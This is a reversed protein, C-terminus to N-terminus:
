RRVSLEAIMRIMKRSEADGSEYTRCLLEIQEPTEGAIVTFGNEPQDPLLSPKSHWGADAFEYMVFSEALMARRSAATLSEDGIRNAARNGMANAEQARLLEVCSERILERLRDSADVFHVGYRKASARVVVAHLAIEEGRWSFRLPLRLGLPLPDQSEIQAM